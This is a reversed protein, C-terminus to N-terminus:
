KIEMFQVDFIIPNFKQRTPPRCRNCFPSISKNFIPFDQNELIKRLESIAKQDGSCESSSVKDLFPNQRNEKLKRKFERPKPSLISRVAIGKNYIEM